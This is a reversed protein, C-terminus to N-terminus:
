RLVQKVVPLGQQDLKTELERKNWFRQAQYTTLLQTTLHHLYNRLWTPRHDAHKNRPRRAQFQEFVGERVQVCYACVYPWLLSLRAGACRPGMLASHRARPRRPAPRPAHPHPLTCMAKPKPSPALALALALALSLALALALTPALSLVLSLVAM